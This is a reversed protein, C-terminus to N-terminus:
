ESDQESTISYAKGNNSKYIERHKIYSTVKSLDRAEDDDRSADEDEAQYLPMSLKLATVIDEGYMSQSQIHNLILKM